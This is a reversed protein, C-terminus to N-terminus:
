SRMYFGGNVSIVQGNVWEGDNSMLMAVMAAIDDPKGLRPSKCKELSIAQNELSIDRKVTESMVLGPSVVNARVGQKGWRSAVSRMLAHLGNKSIAYAVRVPDGVYAAGSGTYIIAGGGRRLMEPIAHRTCLLHGRLNYKITDDFLELSIDLADTDIKSLEVAAANCHIHDLGGFVDVARKVLAAVSADDGVDFAHGVARGGSKVIENATREATEGKIDGVVVSAGEEALRRASAAGIGTAGGAIVAVKGALGRM